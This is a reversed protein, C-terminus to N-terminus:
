WCICVSLKIMLGVHKSVPPDDEPLVKTNVKTYRYCLPEAQLHGLLTSVHLLTNRNIIFTEKHMQQHNTNKNRKHNQSNRGSSPWLLRGFCTTPYYFPAHFITQIRYLSFCPDGAIFLRCPSPVARAHM